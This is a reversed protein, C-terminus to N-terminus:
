EGYVKKYLEMDLGNLVQVIEARLECGDELPLVRAFVRVVDGVNCETDSVITAASSGDDVIITGDVKDIVKGFIRVRVDKEPNIEMAKRPAAALRKYQDM